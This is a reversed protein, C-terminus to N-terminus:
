EARKGMDDCNFLVSARFPAAPDTAEPLSMGRACNLSYGNHVVGIFNKRAVDYSPWELVGVCSASRCDISVVTFGQGPALHELDTHFSRSAHSAWVADVRERDHEKLREAFRERDQARALAPDLPQVPAEPSRDSASTPEPRAELRNLRSELARLRAVDTGPDMNVPVVGVHSSATPIPIGRPSTARSILLTSGVGAVIGALSPVLVRTWNSSSTTM